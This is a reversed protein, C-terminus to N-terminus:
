AAMELLQPAKISAIQHTLNWLKRNLETDTAISRIEKSTFRRQTDTNVGSINGRILNEQVVNYITYLDDAEDEIRHPILLDKPDVQLHKEFRLPIASKAFSLKQSDSLKIQSYQEITYELKPKFATVNNIATAVDSSREGIHKIKYEEFVDGVVLGNQCVFRFIGASVSFATSRDHSNFLLLEIASEKPHLLDEFHRFRVLHRQYGEKDSDRVSSVQANVPYWDFERIEKIVDITPIFHYKDSVEYHPEQTFLTPALTFLEEDSLPKQLASM